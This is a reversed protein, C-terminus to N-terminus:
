KQSFTERKNDTVFKELKRVNEINPHLSFFDRIGIYGVLDGIVEQGLPFEINYKLLGDISCSGSGRVIKTVLLEIQREEEKSTEELLVRLNLLSLISAKPQRFLESLVQHKLEESDFIGLLNQGINNLEGGNNPDRAPVLRCAIAKVLKEGKPVEVGRSKLIDMVFTYDQVREKFDFTARSTCLFDWRALLDENSLGQPLARHIIDLYYVNGFTEKINSYWNKAQEPTLKLHNEVLLEYADVGDGYHRRFHNDALAMAEPKTLKRGPMQGLIFSADNLWGNVICQALAQEKEEPSIKDKKGVTLVQIVHRALGRELTKGILKRRCVDSMRKPILRMWSPRQSLQCGWKDFFEVPIKLRLGTEIKLVDDEFGYVNADGYLSLHMVLLAECLDVAVKTREDLGELGASKELEEELSM